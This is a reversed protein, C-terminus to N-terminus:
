SQDYIFNILSIWFCSSSDPSIHVTGPRFFSQWEIPSITAALRHSRDITLAGKHALWAALPRRTSVRNIAAAIDPRRMNAVLAEVKIPNLNVENFNGQYNQCSLELIDIDASITLTDSVMVDRRKLEEVHLSSYNNTGCFKRIDM